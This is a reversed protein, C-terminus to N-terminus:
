EISKVPTWLECDGKENYFEFYIGHQEDPMFGRSPIEKFFFETWAENETMEEPETAVAFYGAPIEVCVMDGQIKDTEIGLLYCYRQHTEDTYWMVGYLCSKSDPIKRLENEYKDWLQGVERPANELDTEKVYGCVSFKDRNEFRIKMETKEIM